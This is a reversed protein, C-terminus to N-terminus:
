GPGRLYPSLYFTSFVALWVVDVFHWYWVGIKVHLHRRATFRGQLGWLALCALMLLGVAVHTVHVGTITFYLSGYTDGAASFPQDRWEVIQLAAFLTGLLFTLGLGVLLRRRDGGEIGAQGWWAVASSALLVVTNPAAIRLSPVGHPPWLGRAQSALFFYSFLLYAFLAAETGIVLLLGYWGSARRDAPQVPLPRDTVLGEAM